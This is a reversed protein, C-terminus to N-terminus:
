KIEEIDTCDSSTDSNYPCAVSCNLPQLWNHKDKKCYCLKIENRKLQNPWAKFFLLLANNMLAFAKKRDAAGALVHEMKHRDTGM